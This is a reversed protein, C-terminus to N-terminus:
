PIIGTYVVINYTTSEAKQELDVDDGGVSGDKNSLSSVRSLPRSKRRELVMQDVPLLERSLSGDDESKSLWRECPFIYVQSLCYIM